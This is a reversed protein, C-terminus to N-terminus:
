YSFGVCALSYLNDIDIWLECSYPLTCMRNNLPMYRKNEVDDDNYYGSEDRYVQNLDLM